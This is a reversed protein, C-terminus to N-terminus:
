MQLFGRMFDDAALGKYPAIVCKFSMMVFVASFKFQGNATQMINLSNIGMGNRRCEDFKHLFKPHPQNYIFSFKKGGTNKVWIASFRLDSEQEVKNAV